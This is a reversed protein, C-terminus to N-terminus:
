IRQEEFIVQLAMAIAGRLGAEEGLKAVVISGSIFPIEKTKTKIREKVYELIYNSNEIVKGSLIITAPNILKIIGLCLISLILSFEELVPNIVSSYPSKAKLLNELPLKKKLKGCNKEIERLLTKHLVSNSLLDGFYTLDNPFYKLKTRGLHEALEYYGVEGAGGGYGRFLRNDIILGAGIGDGIWVCVLSSFDKAIGLFSEGIAITNVDNEIIVPIGFRKEFIEGIKIQDWGRLTDAFRIKGQEYDILGPVGIGISVLKEPAIGKTKLMLDIKKLVRNLVELPNNGADYTIKKKDIITAEIDALGIRAETRKFEIGVVYHNGTNLKVLSPRKGGRITSEGKGIDLVFGNNILRNIIEFVAVKSMKTKRALDIRSIPGYERILNLLQVENLLKILQTDAKRNM